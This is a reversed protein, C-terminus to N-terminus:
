LIRKSEHRPHLCNHLVVTIPFFFGNKIGVKNEGINQPSMFYKIVFDCYNTLKKGFNLHFGELPYANDANARDGRRTSWSNYINVVSGERIGEGFKRRGLLKVEVFM